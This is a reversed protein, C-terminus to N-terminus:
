YFHAQYLVKNAAWGASLDEHEGLGSLRPGTLNIASWNRVDVM